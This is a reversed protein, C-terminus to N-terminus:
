ELNDEMIAAIEALADRSDTGEFIVSQIQLTIDSTAAEWGPCNPPGKADSLQSELAEGIKDTLGAHHAFATQPPIWLQNQSAVYDILALQADETQLYKIFDFAADANKSGEMIGIVRGGIFATGNGTPGAPHKSVEWKGAMDPYGADLGAVVWTGASAVPYLGSDLGAEVTAATDTTMGADHLTAIFDLAEIAEDSEIIVNCQEDYWDGGAQWLYNSFGIWDTNGWGMVFGGEGGNAEYVAEHVELLEDWNTPVSLGQAELLDPRSFFLMTTVDYPVGYVAGDVSEISSWIGPADAEKIAAIDDPYLENLDLMGGLEGFEIGWSLGGTMLDPGEGSTAATLIRAHASSWDIAEVVVTNGTAQEWAGAAVKLAQADLDGGTMWVTVTVGQAESRRVQVGAVMSMVLLVALLFTIKRKM